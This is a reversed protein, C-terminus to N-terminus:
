LDSFLLSSVNLLYEEDETYEKERMNTHHGQHTSDDWNDM